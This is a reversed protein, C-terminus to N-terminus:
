KESELEKIAHLTALRDKLEDIDDWEISEELAKIRTLLEAREELEDITDIMSVTATM